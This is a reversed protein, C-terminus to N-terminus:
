GLLHDTVGLFSAGPLGAELLVTLVPLLVATGRESKSGCPITKSIRHSNAM